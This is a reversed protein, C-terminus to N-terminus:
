FLNWFLMAASGRSLELSHPMLFRFGTGKVCVCMCVCLVWHSCDTFSIGPANRAKEGWNTRCWVWQQTKKLCSFHFYASLRPWLLSEQLYKWIVCMVTCSFEVASWSLSAAPKRQPQLKQNLNILSYNCKTFVALTNRKIKVSEWM